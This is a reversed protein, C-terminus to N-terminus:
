GLGPWGRLGKTWVHSIGQSQALGKTYGKFDTEKFAIFPSWEGALSHKLPRGNEQFDSAYHGIPQGTNQRTTKLRAHCLVDVEIWSNGEDIAKRKGWLPRSM